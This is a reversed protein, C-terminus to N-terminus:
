ETRLSALAQSPQALGVLLLTRQLVPIPLRHNLQLSLWVTALALEDAVDAPVCISVLHDDEDTRPHDDIYVTPATDPMPGTPRIDTHARWAGLRLFQERVDLCPRRLTPGCSVTLARPVHRSLFAHWWSM